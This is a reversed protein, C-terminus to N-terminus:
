KITDVIKDISNIMINADASQSNKFELLVSKTTIHKNVWSYVYGYKYLDRDYKTISLNFEDLFISGVEKNGVVEDLWGHCDVYIDPNYKLLYDRLYVSERAKFDGFDRNIDIHEATCRGFATKSSAREDNIGAYTGDPNACPILVLRYDQLSECDLQYHKAVGLACNVLM